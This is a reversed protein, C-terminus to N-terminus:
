DSIRRLFDAFGGDPAHLNLLRAGGSGRYAFTHRVGRPISAITGPGVAQVADEITIELEGQLVYFSDVGADHKHVDPGDLPGDLTWEGFSLAPLDGKLLTDRNGSVLREGEGPGSVIADQAPRGGDDPPDFSDFGLDEGDRRGRMYAAFGGDPTHFNLFRVDASGENVFSHILNPPVAVFGGGQVAARKGSPGLAFTMEGDLVYFSDAHERHVHPDPGREGPAYRSWTISIDDQDALLIVDRQERGTITEGDRYHLVVDDIGSEPRELVSGITTDGAGENRTL